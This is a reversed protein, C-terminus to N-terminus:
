SKHDVRKRQPASGRVILGIGMVRENHSHDLFEFTGDPPHTQSELEKWLRPPGGNNGAYVSVSKDNIHHLACIQSSRGVNEYDVRCANYVHGSDIFALDFLQGFFDKSTKGPEFYVPLLHKVARYCEFSDRGDVTILQFEENLRALYAAIICTTWGSVTGIEVARKIRYEGLKVLCRALQMPVHWLGIRMTNVYHNDDGYPFRRDLILGAHRIQDAIFDPKRLDDETASRIREIAELLRSGWLDGDMVAGGPNSTVPTISDALSAYSELLNTSDLHSRQTHFAFHSVISDGYICNPRMLESPKIVSLYEEEEGPVEGGFMAFDSGFWAMCNISYRSLAVLRPGFYWHCINGEVVSKLFARHLQEAFRPNGWTTVDMCWPHIWAGPKIAGRVAQLYTCVANNIINPFIVFYHPNDVRFRLFKPFFDPEIFVVDDDFRIYITDDDVCNRYFQGISSTAGPPRLTPEIVRVRSDIIQLENIFQIDSQDTTNKWLQYEDVLPSALIQTALIKLYRRRGAPTVCVIRYNDFM